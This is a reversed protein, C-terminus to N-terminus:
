KGKGGGSSVPQSMKEYFPAMFTNEANMMDWANGQSYPIEAAQISQGAASSLAGASTSMAQAGLGLRQFPDQQRTLYDQYEVGINSRQRAEEGGVLGSLQSMGQGMAGTEAQGLAVMQNAYTM